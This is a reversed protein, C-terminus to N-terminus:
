LDSSLRPCLLHSTPIYLGFTMYPGWWAVSGPSYPFKNEPQTGALCCPILMTHTPFLLTPCCKLIRSSFAPVYLFPVLVNMQIVSTNITRQRPQKEAQNPTGGWFLINMRETMCHKSLAGQISHQVSFIIAFSAPRGLTGGITFICIFSLQRCHLM